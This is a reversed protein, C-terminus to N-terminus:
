NRRFFLVTFYGNAIDKTNRKMWTATYVNLLMLFCPKKKKKFYQCVEEQCSIQLVVVTLFYTVFNCLVEGFAPFREM